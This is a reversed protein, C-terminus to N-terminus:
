PENRETERQVGHDPADLRVTVDGCCIAERTGDPYTVLLRGEADIADARAPVATEPRTIDALIRIDRGFLYDSARYRAMYSLANEDSFSGTRAATVTEDYYRLLRNAAAALLREALEKPAGGHPYLAGAVGAASGTFGGKPAELNIGIGLATYALRDSGPALASEALIGCIKRDNYYLDNVWKIDPVLGTVEEVAEAVAVAAFVTIRTSQALSMDPRLLLTFYLGTGRPSEFSRGLRGRGQTQESAVMLTGEPAGQAGLEKVLLNTSTVSDRAILSIRGPADLLNYFKNRDM